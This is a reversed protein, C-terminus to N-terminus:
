APSQRSAAVRLAMARYCEAFRAAADAGLLRRPYRVVLHLRGDLRLAGICLTVPSRAPASFWLERSPGADPGFDPADPVDGLYALLATDVLRNRTLPQLVVLSQKAWLALLGSRALAALLAIGTRTRKNRRTQAAIAKLAVAPGSRQARTTSVRATVSFNAVTEDPWGAPRLNVPVLVSIRGGPGGHHLNWEGIALHLAALLVNRTTGPRTVDVLQRTEEASLTLHHFGYGPHDEAQDVAFRAPPSILDRVRESLTRGTAMWRSVTASAPRVPLDSAALFAPRCAPPREAEPGVAYICAVARLVALAGLGDSAAHNLNVMVVDGGPHRVLRARLPPRDTVAVATAQLGTRAADLDADDACDMVDLVEGRHSGELTDALAARLRDEDLSGTVRAEVQVSWAAETPDLLGDIDPVAGSWYWRCDLESRHDGQRGRRLRVLDQAMGVLNHAVARRLSYRSLRRPRLGLPSVLDVHATIRDHHVVVHLSETARNERFSVQGPHFIRGFGSDRHFRGSAELYGLLAVPDSADPREPAAAPAPPAPADQLRAQLTPIAADPQSADQSRM